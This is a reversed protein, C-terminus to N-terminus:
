LPTFSLGIAQALRTQRGDTSVFDTVALAKAVACHLIDLSRCGVAATHHAALAVADLYIM